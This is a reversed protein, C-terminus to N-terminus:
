LFSSLSQNPDVCQPWLHGVLKGMPDVVLCEMPYVKPPCFVSNVLPQVVFQVGHAMTRLSPWFPTTHPM